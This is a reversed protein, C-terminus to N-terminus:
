WKLTLFGAADKPDFWGFQHPLGDTNPKIVVDFQEVLADVGCILFQVAQIPEFFLQPYIFGLQQQCLRAMLGRQGLIHDAPLDVIRM